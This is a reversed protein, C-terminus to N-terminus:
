KWARYVVFMKRRFTDARTENQNSTMKYYFSCVPEIFKLTISLSNCRYAGVLEMYRKEIRQSIDLFLIGAIVNPINETDALTYTSYWTQIFFQM